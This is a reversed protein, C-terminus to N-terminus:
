GSKFAKAWDMGKWLDQQAKFDGIQEMRISNTEEAAGSRRGSVVSPKGGYARIWQSTLKLKPFFQVFLFAVIRVRTMNVKAWPGLKKRWEATVDSEVESKSLTPLYDMLKESAGEGTNEGSTKVRGTAMFALPKEAFVLCTLGKRMGDGEELWKMALEYGLGKQYVDYKGSFLSIFEDTETEHKYIAEM